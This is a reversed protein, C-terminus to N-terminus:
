KQKVSNAGDMEGCLKIDMMVLDPELGASKMIAEEDSAVRGVVRYGKREVMSSIISAIIEDEVILIRPVPAM